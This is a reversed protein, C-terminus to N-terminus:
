RPASLSFVCRSTCIIDVAPCSIHLSKGISPYRRSVRFETRPPRPRPKLKSDSIDPPEHINPYSIQSKESVTVLPNALLILLFRCDAPTKLPRGPRRLLNETAKFLTRHVHTVSESQSIGTTLSISLLRNLARLQRSARSTNALATSLVLVLM